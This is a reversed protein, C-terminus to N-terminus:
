EDVEVENGFVSVVVALCIAKLLTTNDTFVFTNGLLDSVEMYINGNTDEQKECDICISFPTLLEGTQSWSSTPTYSDILYKSGVWSTAVRKHKSNTIFMGEKWGQSKAVWYDLQNDTLDQLKIKM